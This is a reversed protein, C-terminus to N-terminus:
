QYDIQTVYMGAPTSECMDIKLNMTGLYTLCITAKRVLWFPDLVSDLVPDLVSELVSDLVPDLVPDLMPYLESDLVPDLVSEM